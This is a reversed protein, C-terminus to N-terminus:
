SGTWLISGKGHRNVVKQKIIQAANSETSITRHVQMSMTFKMNANQQCIRHRPVNAHPLSKLETLLLLDMFLIQRCHYVVAPFTSYDGIIEKEKRRQGTSVEYGLSRATLLPDCSTEGPIGPVPGGCSATAQGRIVKEREGEDFDVSVRRNRSTCSIKM